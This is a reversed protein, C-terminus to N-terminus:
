PLKVQLTAGGWGFRQDRGQITVYTVSPPIQVNTLTRTFPQESAHDHLLERIGLVRGHPDLVRFADAYRERSDYPSSLTVAFSFRGNHQSVSADLVDPYHQIDDNASAFGASILITLIAFMLHRM